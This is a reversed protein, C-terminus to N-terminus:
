LYIMFLKHWWKFWSSIKANTIMLTMFPEWSTDNNWDHATVAETMIYIISMEFSTLHHIKIMVLECSTEDDLYHVTRLRQHRRKYWLQGCSSDDYVDASFQTYNEAPKMNM